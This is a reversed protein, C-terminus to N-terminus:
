PRDENLYLVFTPIGKCVWWGGIVVDLGDLPDLPPPHIIGSGMEATNSYDSEGGNMFENREFEVDM